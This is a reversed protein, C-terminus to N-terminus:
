LHISLQNRVSGHSYEYAVKVQIFYTMTESEATLRRSRSKELKSFARSVVCTTASKSHPNKV